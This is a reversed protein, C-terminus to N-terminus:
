ARALSALLPTPEYVRGRASTRIVLLGAQALQALHYYTIRPALALRRAIERAPLGPEGVIAQAVARATRGRLRAHAHVEPSRSAPGGAFVLHRRGVRRSAVLGSKELRRLHHYLTGWSTGLERKLEGITAGPRAAVIRLLRERNGDDEALTSLAM